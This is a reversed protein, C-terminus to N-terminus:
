GAKWYLLATNIQAEDHLCGHEQHKEFFGELYSRSREEDIGFVKFYVPYMELLEDSSVLRESHSSETVVSVERGLQKLIDLYVSAETIMGDPIIGLERMMMYRYKERSGSMVTRLACYGSSYSEFRLLEDLNCVAPCMSSFVLDFKEAPVYDEWMVRKTEINGIRNERCRERLVSLATENDDITVVKGCHRAMQLAYSGTGSGVDLM